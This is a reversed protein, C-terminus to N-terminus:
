PHKQHRISQHVCSHYSKSSANIDELRDEYEELKDESEKLDEARLQTIVRTERIKSGMNLSVIGPVATSPQTQSRLRKILAVTLIAPV